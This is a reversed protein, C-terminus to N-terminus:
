RLTTAEVELAVHEAGSKAIAVASMREGPRWAVVSEREPLATRAVDFGAARWRREYEGVVDVDRAAVCSARRTLRAGDGGSGSGNCTAGDAIPLGHVDVGRVTGSPPRVDRVNWRTSTVAVDTGDPRARLEVRDTRRPAEGEVAVVDGAVVRRVLFGHTRLQQEVDKAVDDVSRPTRGSTRQEERTGGRSSGTGGRSLDPIQLQPADDAPSPAVPAPAPPPPPPPAPPPPPRPTAVITTSPADDGITPPSRVLLFLVAGLVALVGLGYLERPM